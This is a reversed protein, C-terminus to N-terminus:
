TFYKGSWAHLCIQMQTQKPRKEVEDAGKKVVREGQQPTHALIQTPKQPWQTPTEFSLCYRQLITGCVDSGFPFVM